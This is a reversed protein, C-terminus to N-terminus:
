NAESRRDGQRREAGRYAPDAAQRRDGRRRDRDEAPRDHRDNM